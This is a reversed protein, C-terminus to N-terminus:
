GLAARCYAVCKKMEALVTSDKPVAYELEIMASIPYREKQLLQLVERLPTDGQGWPTNAGGNAATRRDKLHLHSIRAHYKQLFPVPSHGTSAVYHGVDLNLDNRPSYALLKEVDFAAEGYQMHNHMGNLLKHRDAFAAM